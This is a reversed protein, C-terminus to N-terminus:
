YSSSRELSWTSLGFIFQTRNIVTRKFNGTIQEVIEFKFKSKWKKIKRYLDKQANEETTNRPIAIFSFFIFKHYCM